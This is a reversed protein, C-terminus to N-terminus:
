RTDLIYDRFIVQWPRKTNYLMGASGVSASYARELFGLEPLDQGLKWESVMRVDALKKERGINSSFLYYFAITDVALRHVDEPQGALQDHWKEFFTGDGTDANEGTFADLLATITEPTWAHHEPWLFSMGETLCRRRFLDAAEYAPEAGLIRAM